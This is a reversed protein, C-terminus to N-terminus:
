GTIWKPCCKGRTGLPPPFLDYFITVRNQRLGETPLPLRQIYLVHEGRGVLPEDNLSPVGQEAVTKRSSYDRRTSSYDSAMHPCFHLSQWSYKSLSSTVNSLVQQSFKIPQSRLGSYHALRWPMFYTLSKKNIFNGKSMSGLHSLHLSDAQLAPSGLEIGPNPLDQPLSHCGVGTNM